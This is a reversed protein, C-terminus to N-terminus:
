RLRDLLLARLAALDTDVAVDVESAPAAGDAATRLAPLRRDALTAGRGPGFSCEVQVPVRETRLTGPRIAEAVAVADHVVMGDWGLAGRYHTRYDPTLAHLAAGIPGSADLEDLWAADVACRYTLDMPVLVCPADGGTLVRQAAEPDSWINFEAAATTNGHGLAGGMIVIRDIKAAAAPHAALLAAINTLPGIPAITVPTDSAELLEALLTVADREDLPRSPEPLAASRGSLGDSGHVEGAEHPSRHVLPRPAGAAVPVDARKCLALIRRANITTASLPVNGHVTTVGLLDVDSSLAALAIAFADDVGPDTDIILKQAM